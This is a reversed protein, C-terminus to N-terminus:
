KNKKFRDPILNNSLLYEAISKAYIYHGLYNPHHEWESTAMSMGSYKKFLPLTDVIHFGEKKLEKGVFQYFHITQALEGKPNNFNNKKGDIFGYNLLVAIPPPLNHKQTLSKMGKFENLAYEWRAQNPLKRELNINTRIEFFKYINTKQYWKRVKSFEKPEIPPITSINRFNNFTM